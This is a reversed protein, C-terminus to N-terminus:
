AEVGPIAQIYALIAKCLQADRGGANVYQQCCSAISDCVSAAFSEGNYISIDFDDAMKSAKIFITISANYSDSGTLSKFEYKDTSLENGNVVVKLNAPDTNIKAYLKIGIAERLVLSKGALVVSGDGNNNIHNSVPVSQPDAIEEPVLLSEEELFREYAEIGYNWLTKALHVFGDSYTGGENATVLSLIDNISGTFDTIGTGNVTINVHFASPATAPLIVTYCEIGDIVKIESASLDAYTVTMLADTLDERKIEIALDSGVADALDKRIWLRINVSENLILSAATVETGICGIWQTNDGNAKKYVYGTVTGDKKVTTISAANASPVTLYVTGATWAETQQVTLPTGDYSTAALSADADLLLKYSGGKLQVSDFTTNRVIVSGQFAVDAVTPQVIIIAGSDTTANAASSGAYVNATFTGGRITTTANIVPSNGSSGGYISGEFTGGTILNTISKITCAIQEKSSGKSGSYFATGWAEVKHFTGGSIHNVIELRGSGPERMGGIFGYFEGGSINNYIPGAPYGTASESFGGGHFGIDYDPSDYDFQGGSINNVISYGTEPDAGLIGSSFTRPGGFFVQPFKGAEINNVIGKGIVTKYGGGYYTYYISDTTSFQPENGKADKRVTTMVQGEVTNTVNENSTGSFTGDLKFTGEIINTVNGTVVTTKDAAGRNSGSVHSKFANGSLTNQINGEVTGIYNGGYYRSSFTGGTVENTINGTVTGDYSGAYFVKKISGKSVKNTINGILTGGKSGGFFDANFTGGSITNQINATMTTAPLTKGGLASKASTYDDSTPLGGYFSANFTGGSITNKITGSKIEPVASSKGVPVGSGFVEANFTGGSITTTVKASSTACFVKGGFTGGSITNKITGYTTSTYNNGLFLEKEFTATGSITNTITNAYAYQFGCNVINKFTGGSITNYVNPVNSQSWGGASGGLYVIGGFTGGSINNRISKDSSKVYGNHFAIFEGKIEGGSITNVYKGNIDCLGQGGGSGSYNSPGLVVGGNILGGSMNFYSDGHISCSFTEKETEPLGSGVGSYPAHRVSAQFEGGSINLTLNGTLVCNNLVQLSTTAGNVKGGSVTITIDGSRPTIESVIGNDGVIREVTGSKVEVIAHSVTSDGLRASIRGVNGGDVILYSVMDAPTFTYGSITELDTTNAGVAAINPLITTDVSSSFVTEESFTIATVLKGDANVNATLNDDSWGELAKHTFNDAYISGLTSDGTLSKSLLVNRFEVEGCGAFLKTNWDGIPFSLNYFTYDNACAIKDALSETGQSALQITASTHGSGSIIIPLKKGAKNFITKQGFLINEGAQNSYNTGTFNIRATEIDNWGTTEAIEAFYELAKEITKFPAEETGTGTEDSGATADVYYDVNLTGSWSVTVTYEKSYGGKTMVLITIKNNGDPSLNDAGTITVSEVEAETVVSLDVETTGDFVELLYANEETANPFVRYNIQGDASAASISAIYPNNLDADAEKNLNLIHPVTAASSEEDIDQNELNANFHLICNASTSNKTAFISLDFAFYGQNPLNAADWQTGSAKVSDELNLQVEMTAIGGKAEGWYALPYYGIASEDVSTYDSSDPVTIATNYLRSASLSTGDEAYSKAEIAKVETEWWEKLYVTRTKRYMKFQTSAGSNMTHSSANSGFGLFTTLEYANMQNPTLGDSVQLEPFSIAAYISGGIKALYLDIYEPLKSLDTIRNGSADEAWFDTGAKLRLHPYTLGYENGTIYGDITPATAIQAIGLEKQGPLPADLSAFVLLATSLLLITSLVLAITKNFNRKM